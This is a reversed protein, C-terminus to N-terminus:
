DTSGTAIVGQLVAAVGDAAEEGVSTFPWEPISFPQIRRWGPLSPHPLTQVEVFSALEFDGASDLGVYCGHHAAETAVTSSGCLVEDAWDLDMRLPAVSIPWKSRLSRIAHAAVLPHPRIKIDSGSEVIARAVPEMRNVFKALPELGTHVLLSTRVPFRERVRAPEIWHAGVVYTHCRPDWRQLIAAQQPSWSFVQDALFPTYAMRNPDGHLLTYTPIGRLRAAVVFPAAPIGRDYDALVAKTVTWDIDGDAYRFRASQLALFRWAKAASFGSERSMGFAMHALRLLANWTTRRRRRVLSGPRWGPLDRGPVWLEVSVGSGELRQQLPRLREKWREGTDAAILVVEPAMKTEPAFWPVASLMALCCDLFQRLSRRRDRGMQM